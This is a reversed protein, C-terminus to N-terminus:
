LRGDPHQETIEVAMEKPRTATVSRLRMREGRSCNCLIEVTKKDVQWSSQPEGFDQPGPLGPHNGDLYVITSLTTAQGDWSISDLTFVEGWAHREICNEIGFSAEAWCTAGVLMLLAVIRM